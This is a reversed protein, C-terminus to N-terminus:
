GSLPARTFDVLAMRRSYDDACPTCVMDADTEDTGQYRYTIREEALERCGITACRVAPAWEGFYDRAVAPVHLLAEAKTPYPPGTIAWEGLDDQAVTRWNEWGYNEVKIRPHSTKM